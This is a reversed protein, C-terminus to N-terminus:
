GQEGRFFAIRAANSQGAWPWCPASFAEHHAWLQLERATVAYGNAEALAVLQQLSQVDACQQQLQPDSTTAELFCRLGQSKM